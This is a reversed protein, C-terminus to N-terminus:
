SLAGNSSPRRSGTRDHSSSSPHIALPMRGGNQQQHDHHQQLQQAAQQQKQESAKGCGKVLRHRKLADKRSFSKECNDCPFPKVALHIRKHRKLDHNRSFSQPCVDCKFPRDQQPHHHVGPHHHHTLVGGAQGMGMMTVGVGPLSYSPRYQPQPQLPQLPMLPPPYTNSGASLLRNSTPPTPSMQPPPPYSSSYYSGTSLSPPPPPPPPPANHPSYLDHNSPQQPQTNIANHQNYSPAAYSSVQQGISGGMSRAPLSSGPGGSTPYTPVNSEYPSSPLIDGTAPSSPRNSSRGGYTGPSSFNRVTVNQSHTGSPAYDRSTGSAPLYGYSSSSPSSSSTNSPQYGPYSGIGSPGSSAALPNAM